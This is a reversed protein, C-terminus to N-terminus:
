GAGLPRARAAQDVLGRACRLRFPTLGGLAAAAAAPHHFRVTPRDDVAVVGVAVAPDLHEVVADPTLGAARALLDLSTAGGRERGAGGDVAVAMLEVLRRSRLPLRRIQQAAADGTVSRSVPDSGVETQHGSAGGTVSPPMLDGLAVRRCLARAGDHDARLVAAEMARLVPGRDPLGGEGELALRARRLVRLAAVDRERALEVAAELAWLRGDGPQHARAEALAPGAQGPRDVVLAAAMVLRADAALAELRDREARAWPADGADALAPGRWLDLARAAREGAAAARDAALDTRAAAVMAVAERDDRVLGPGDLAYGEPTTVLLQAPTGPARGPELRRRLAGVRDFLGAVTVGAGGAPAESALLAGPGPRGDAGLLPLLRRREAPPPAPAEWSPASSRPRDRPRM